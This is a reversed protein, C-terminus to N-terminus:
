KKPWHRDVFDHASEDHPSKDLKKVIIDEDGFSCEFHVHPTQMNTRDPDPTSVYVKEIPFDGSRDTKFVVTSVTYIWDGRNSRGDITVQAHGALKCNRLTYEDMIAYESIFLGQKTHKIVANAAAMATARTVGIRTDSM